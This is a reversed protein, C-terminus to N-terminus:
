ASTEEISEIFRATAAYIPSVTMQRLHRKVETREDPTAELVLDVLAANAEVIFPYPTDLAWDDPWDKISM